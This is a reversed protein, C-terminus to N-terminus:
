DRRFTWLPTTNDWEFMIIGVRSNTWRATAFLKDASVYTLSQVFEMTGLQTCSFAVGSLPFKCVIGDTGSTIVSFYMISEDPSM